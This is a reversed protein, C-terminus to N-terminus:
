TNDVLLMTEVQVEYWPQQLRETTGLEALDPFRGISPM